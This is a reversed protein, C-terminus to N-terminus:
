VSYITPLTLHTYSVSGRQYGVEYFAQVLEMFRSEELIKIHNLDTKIQHPSQYYHIADSKSKHGILEKQEQETLRLNTDLFTDRTIHVGAGLMRKLKPFITHRLNDWKAKGEPVEGKNTLTVFNLLRLRDNGQYAYQPHTRQLTEKLSKHLLYSPLLNLLITQEKNKEKKSRTKHLFIKEGLHGTWDEDIWYDPYYPLIPEEPKIDEDRIINKESINCIDMGGLGRLSLSYLWFNISMFDQTTRMDNFGNVVDKFRISTKHTEKKSKILGNESFPKKHKLNAYKSGTIADLMKLYDIVGNGLGNNNLTFSIHDISNSDQIHSFQLPSYESGLHKEIARLYSLYKQKQRRTLRKSNEIWYKISADESRDLLKNFANELTLEGKGMDISVSNIRAKIEDLFQVEESFKEVFSKKIEKRKKDWINYPVKIPIKKMKKGGTGYKYM